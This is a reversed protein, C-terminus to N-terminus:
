CRVTGGTDKMSVTMRGINNEEGMDTEM